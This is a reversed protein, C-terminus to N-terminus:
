PTRGVELTFRWGADRVAQEFVERLGGYDLTGGGGVSRDTRSTSVRTGSESTKEVTMTPPPIGWSSEKAMERFRVERTADDLRCSFRYGVKRGGLFWKALIADQEGSLTGADGSATKVGHASATSALRSLLESGPLADPM